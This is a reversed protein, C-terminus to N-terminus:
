EDNQERQERAARRRAALLGAAGESSASEPSKPKPATPAAPASTTSAPGSSAPRSAAPEPRPRAPSPPRKTPPTDPKATDATRTTKQVKTQASRLRGTAEAAKGAAERAAARWARDGFQEGVLRDWAVRRTGVDLLFVLVTWALLVPWLPSSAERPQIGARDFLDATGPSAPDLVRGGTEAALRELLPRNSELRQYEVGTAVTAGGVVPRLPTTGLRPRAVVIYNGSSNAEATARYEGPGVQTLVIERSEGEPTYITAPITLLDVPEGSESYAAYRIRLGEPTLETRLEGGEGSATRSLGRAVQTWFTSYGSWDLWREAWRHADSTFAGVQGLEVAWHALVPEAEPTAMAYTISPEPRAQTLVLGELRPPQSIGAVLPSGTPLMVVDFPVERVLPSRVVRVAKLFVRPLVNPNVVNFFSGQGIDAMQRLTTTDAQDGVAITTIFIGDENRMAEALQPLSEADSSMGDTLVIVHKLKADAERLQDRAIRLAPGISTGGGSPIARVRSATRDPNNNPGLPEIVSPSSNFAIVGVLDRPDLTAIARAASENAIEQQSRASGLVTRRMSGSNDLVFVIAAEPVILKEPIDLEVPLIPEVISGRWGGAGFSEPGGLMLLGGGLDRVYAVLQEQAPDPIAEAPVNQLIVLDYSQLELLGGPVGATGVATVDIGSRELARALTLGVSGPAAESVGDVLLVAGKGPTVTFARGTNNALVTDFPRGPGAETDQPADPEFVAEFRHLREPGLRAEVLEVQRGATLTVRRGTGPADPDADVPEGERFVRLTGTAPGTSRLVVRVLVVSEGAARPPADVQEVVVENEVRYELPVVDVSVAGGAGANGASRGARAIERGAALADGGTANGDSFVVLRGAADPPILASAYRLAAALDSGEFGPAAVSRDLVDAASPTAVAISRGDFAVVGLLDDPGRNEIAASLWGRAFDAPDAPGNANPGGIGAFRQVSGSVDVVAIVALRDVERVSSAGALLAALLGFLLARALVASWRRLATMAVFWRLGLVALPVALAALWLWRPDEFSFPLSVPM